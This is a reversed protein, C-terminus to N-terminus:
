RTTVELREPPLLMLRVAVSSVLPETCQFRFTHRGPALTVESPSTLVTGKPPGAERIRTPEGPWYILSQGGSMTVQWALPQGDVELAPNQLRPADLDPLAKVDDIGCVVTSKAPLGNYYFILDSVKHYDIPDKEPRPLQQYRWGKYNNTIYYDTAGVGDRLQLKFQGGNGDGRLWFGIGKHWSLDLPPDFRRGIASWGGETDMTSTATYVACRQGSAAGETVLEFRQTVGERTMGAKGEGIVYGDMRADPDKLYPKLDNFDELLLAKASTYSPGPKAWGGPPCVSLEVALRCPGDSVEVEWVNQKGDLTGIDRAPQYIVRQLYKGSNDQMLHYDRKPERLAIRTAEPVKGSLRIKEYSGILDVIEGVFPHRRMLEPSTGFSISSDFGMSKNLIYEFEEVTHSTDFVSYWGIDLPMLNDRYWKFSPIREDLYGKLDGHGDASACRSVIHWSYPSYSSAQAFVDKNKFRSYFAQHLKANYYWHEGQLQESGDWYVMDLNCTNVIRAVNDAIENLISTDMDYLYYGYSRHMHAVRDRQKHAVAKTGHYGRACNNFGYPPEMSTSTYHILEDGIQLVAGSGLYDVDKDPFGKPAVTTPIFTAKVDVDAALEAFADRVLRPDPMPAVYPDPPYISAGLHHLGVKFGAKKLRSVSDRLSNLGRPYAKENILYHGTTACWMDGTQFIMISDFGGRKAFAIVDDTDAETMYFVLLYSKKTRPSLKSWVGDPHPSPLGSAREFREITAEFEKRPCALVGVGAPQLGFRKLTEAYLRVGGEMPQWLESQADEFDELPIVRVKEGDGVIAEVQDLVCSIAKKAPANNYYYNVRTVQDYRLTDYSPKECTVQRWGTFNVPVYDDRAGNQADRLQVKLAAGSGDGFVWWRVAKCGSLDLPQPFPKGIVMSWGNNDDRDSTATFKAAAKGEKVPDSVPVFKHSCGQNDASTSQPSEYRSRVNIETGMVATAFQDNFCANPGGGITGLPKVPLCFLQLRVTGPVGLETLKLFAFGKGETVTFRLRGKEGFVFTLASGKREVATPYLLGQDTEVVVAPPAGPSAYEQGDAARLSTVCGAENLSITATGIQLTVAAPAISPMILLPLCWFLWAHRMPCNRESEYYSCTRM